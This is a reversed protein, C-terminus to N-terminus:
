KITKLIKIFNTKSKNLFEEKKILKLVSKKVIKELIKKNQM